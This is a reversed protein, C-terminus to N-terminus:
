VLQPLPAIVRDNVQGLVNGGPLPAHEPAVRMVHRCIRIPPVPERLLGGRLM